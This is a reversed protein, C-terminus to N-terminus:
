RTPIAPLPRGDSGSLGALNGTRRDTGRVPRQLLRQRIRDRDESARQRPTLNHNSQKTTANSEGKARKEMRPWERLIQSLKPPTDRDWFKFTDTIGQAAAESTNYRESLFPFLQKLEQQDRPNNEDPPYECLSNLAERIPSPITIATVVNQSSSNQSIQKPPRAPPEAPEIKERVNNTGGVGVNSTVLITKNIEKTDENKSSRVVENKSSRFVEREENKSVKESTREENELSRFRPKQQTKPGFLEVEFRPNLAYDNGNRQSKRNAEPTQCLVLATGFTTDSLLEKLAKAITADSKIGTGCKIQSYSIRDHKKGWGKTNRVIVCLVAWASLSLRPQVYDFLSNHMPTFHGQELFPFVTQSSNTM